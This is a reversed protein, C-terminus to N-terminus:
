ESKPGGQRDGSCIAESRSRTGPPKPATEFVTTPGQDVSPEFGEGEAKRLGFQRTQLRNPKTTPPSAAQHDHRQYGGSVAGSQLASCRLQLASM